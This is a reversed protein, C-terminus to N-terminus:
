INLRFAIIICVPHVCYCYQLHLSGKSFLYGKLLSSRIIYASISSGLFVAHYESSQKARWRLVPIMCKKNCKNQSPELMLALTDHPIHCICATKSSRQRIVNLAKDAKPPPQSSHSHFFLFLGLRHFVDSHHRLQWRLTFSVADFM